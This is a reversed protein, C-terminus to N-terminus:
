ILLVIFVDSNYAIMVVVGGCCSWTVLGRYVTSEFGGMM